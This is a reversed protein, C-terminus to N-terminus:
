AGARWLLLGDGGKAVAGQRGVPSAATDLLVELSPEDDAPVRAMLREGQPTRAIVVGTRAGDRDYLVTYTEIEAPGAYDLVLPPVDGMAADAQAQVSYNEHLTSAPAVKSALVLAHHKTVYEGQGYLLATRGPADRLARVLGCAAHTMYNNLPAGFFSLGGTSTMQADSDLGLVRRAMKPVIPFCSYLETMAFSSADGGVIALAAKLVAEQAHSRVYSDRDLYDRPENAAAGGWIHVMREDPVGARRAEAVSTVIVGAGMNVLPNAVMSKTYPWAIMRNDPTPTVIEDASQERKLWAHPNAAAVASYGSWLEGSEQLAEAPTQGWAAQAANEYFPYVNTPTAVGHAVALRHLFDPGRLIRTETDAPTWPLDVGQKQAASVSYQAEAGVVAGVRSEGRAIRLAAEHLYRVPSEGGVPGYVKRAPDIGLRECLLKPADHYPWSVECVIDLSDLRSLLGGGADQEAARLAREMLDLPELADELAKSRNTFEGIGVIVPQREADQSVHPTQQSSSM